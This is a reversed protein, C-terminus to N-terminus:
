FLKLQRAENNKLYIVLEKIKPRGLGVQEFNFDYFFTLKSEQNIEEQVPILIKREFDKFRTYNTGFLLNLEELTYTKKRAYGKSYGDIIKILGLMKITNVNKLQVLNSANIITFRNEVDKILDLIKNFVKIEILDKGTTVKLYPIVTISEEYARAVGEGVSVFSICTEQIKSLNKLVTKRDSKITSILDNLSFELSTLDSSSLVFSKAKMSLFLVIKIAIINKKIVFCELLSNSIRVYQLDKLEKEKELKQLKLLDSPMM